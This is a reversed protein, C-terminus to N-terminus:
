TLAKGKSPNGGEAQGCFIMIAGARLNEQKDIGLQHIKSCDVMAPVLPDTSTTSVKHQQQAHVSFAGLGFLALFVGGLGIFLGFLLRPNFYASQSASKTKM